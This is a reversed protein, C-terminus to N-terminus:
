EINLKLLPTYKYQNLLPFINKSYTSKLKTFQPLHFKTFQPTISNLIYILHPNIPLHLYQHQTNLNYSTFM